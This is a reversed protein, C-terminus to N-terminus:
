GSTPPPEWYAGEIMEQDRQARDLTMLPERGSELAGVFDRLMADYGSLDAFGPLILRSRAVVFLGNSEFVISGQTGSIRSLQLGHLRSPTEWSHTLTGVAGGDYEFLVVSSREPGSHGAQVVRVSTVQPGLHAILDVWHIGGEFLAGGGMDAANARWGGGRQLKLANVQIIRPEGIAGSALVDRLTRALPKYCYNEAVMVRRGSRKQAARVAEFDAARLFAPKEVIVDKGSDLAALTLALHSPPPTAVFAVDMRGDALAADYSGFSGAGGLGEEFAAAKRPDRSAYFCQVRGRLARLRRGHAATIAGCGLFVIRLRPSV